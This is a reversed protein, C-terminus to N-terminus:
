ARGRPRTGCRAAVVPSPHLEADFPRGCPVRGATRGARARRAPQGTVARVRHTAHELAARHRLRRRARVGGLGGCRGAGLDAADQAAVAHSGADGWAHSRRRGRLAAVQRRGVPQDRDADLQRQRPLGPVARCRPQGRRAVHVGRRRGREYGFRGAFSQSLVSTDTLSLIAVGFAGAVLALTQSLGVAPLSPHPLGQPLVGVTAIGYRQLQLVASAITGSWSSWWRGRSRRRALVRLALIIVLSSVGLTAAVPNIAGLGKFFEVIQLFVGEAPAKYGLLKPLQSVIVVVAIGNMYGLRVPKSLLAAVFGLRAVGVVLSMVGVLLALMGALAIRQSPIPSRSRSSRRPWSRRPRPTRAWSWCARPASSRTSSCRCWARTCVTSRVAARGARRLGHGRSGASRRAGTRRAPRRAAM